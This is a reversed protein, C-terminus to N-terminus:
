GLVDAATRFTSAHAAVTLEIPDSYGGGLTVVCPVGYRRCAEFVILDRERLGARTLGLRGLRDSALGDVGSQYFAIQPRFEFARPLVGRLAGLYSDDRTGDRLAVDIVSEQKRFPFNNSAHISLTFVNPDNAFITATGDGQHVDLDIIAARRGASRVAIAIDNFVCFGSGESPFAHHTGGALNGGWGHAVADETARLTGGASALTRRVLGESWPLGIRRIIRPELTGNLFAHIYDPDHVLAIKEVAAFPSPEFTFRTDAALAERLLAYKRAPFKHGVSLPIDHQDCYWLRAL